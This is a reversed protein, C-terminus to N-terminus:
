QHLKENKIEPSSAKQRVKSRPVNRGKDFWHCVRKAAWNAKELSSSEWWLVFYHYQQPQPSHQLSFTWAFVWLLQHQIKGWDLYNCHLGHKSIIHGCNSVTTCTNRYQTVWCSAQCLLSSTSLSRNKCHSTAWHRQKAPSRLMCTSWQHQCKFKCM